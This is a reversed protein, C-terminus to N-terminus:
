GSRILYRIEIEAVKDEIQKSLVMTESRLTRLKSHRSIERRRFSVELSKEKIGISWLWATRSKLRTSHYFGTKRGQSLRSTL